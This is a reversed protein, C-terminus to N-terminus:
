KGVAHVLDKENDLCHYDLLETDPFLTQNLTVTWPRLYAKPDDVTLAVQLNGYNVRRFRETLTAADSLPSGNRDLWAGDRLGTTRVVLTDGEWAGVSYGNWSPEPDSPLPRGDLFIQRYTVDRESLILLLGPLQIIKRPPPFTLIRVAGAPRCAAVPDDRGLEASRQEVLAAAWPQYPLGGPLKAGLNIFEPAAPYDACGSSPCDGHLVWIGSFDPRRDGTRPAPAALNPKGSSLRPIGPTPYHLWQAAAARPIALACVLALTLRVTM